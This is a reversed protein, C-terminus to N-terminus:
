GIEDRVGIKIKDDILFCEKTFRCFLPTCKKNGKHHGFHYGRHCCFEGKGKFKLIKRSKM